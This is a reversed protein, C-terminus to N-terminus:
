GGFNAGYQSVFSRVEAPDFIYEEGNQDVYTVTGDDNNSAWTLHIGKITVSYLGEQEPDIPGTDVGELDPATPDVAAEAPAPAPVPETAEVPAGAPEVPADGIGAEELETAPPPLAEETIEATGYNTDIYDLAAPISGYTTRTEEAALKLSEERSIVRSPTEAIAAKRIQDAKDEITKDISNIESISLDNNKEKAKREAVTGYDYTVTPAGEVGSPTYDKGYAALDSASLGDIVITNDLKDQARGYPDAGMMAAFIGGKRDRKFGDPDAQAARQIPTLAKKFFTYFDEDPAKFGESVQVFDDFFSQDLAIGAEQARAVDSYFDTLGLPDQSAVAMIIDKPVGMQQLQKATKVSVDVQQAVKRHNELGVTTAIEYQKQFYDRAIKTRDNIGDALTNAFGTVFGEAFSM